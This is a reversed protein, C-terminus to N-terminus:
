AGNLRVLRCCSIKSFGKYGIGRKDLTQHSRWRAYTSATDQKCTCICERQLELIALSPPLWWGTLDFM